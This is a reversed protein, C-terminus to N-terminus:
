QQTCHICAPTGSHIYSHFFLDPILLEQHQLRRLPVRWFAFCLSASPDISCSGLRLRFDIRLPPRPLDPPLRARPWYARRKSFSGRTWPTKIGRSCLRIIAINRRGGWAERKGGSEVSRTGGRGAGGRAPRAKGRGRRSGAGSRGCVRPECDLAAQGRLAPEAPASTLAAAQRTPPERPEPRGPGAGPWCAPDPLLTPAAALPGGARAAM